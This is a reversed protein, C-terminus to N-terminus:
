LSPKSLHRQRETSAADRMGRGGFRTSISGCVSFERRLKKRLADRNALL